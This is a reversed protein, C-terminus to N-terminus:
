TLDRTSGLKGGATGGALNAATEPYGAIKELAKTDRIVVDSRDRVLIQQRRFRSLLRSVTERSLGILQAITEQNLDIRPVKEGRYEAKHALLGLLCSALKQEASQLEVARMKILVFYCAESVLEAAQRAVTADGQMERALEKRPVFLVKTPEV